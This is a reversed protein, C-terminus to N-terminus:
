KLIDTYFGPLITRDPQQIPEFEHRLKEFSRAHASFEEEIALVEEPLLTTLEAVVDQNLGPSRVWEIAKETEEPDLERETGVGILTGNAFHVRRVLTDDNDGPSILALHGMREGVGLQSATVAGWFEGSHLMGFRTDRAGVGDHHTVVLRGMYTSERIWAIPRGMRQSRDTAITQDVINRFTEINEQVSPM